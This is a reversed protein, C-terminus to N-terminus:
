VVNPVIYISVIEGAAFDDVRKQLPGKSGSREIEGVAVAGDKRTKWVKRPVSISISLCAVERPPSQM